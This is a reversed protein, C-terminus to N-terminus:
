ILFLLESDKIGQEQLSMGANLKTGERALWLSPEPQLMLPGPAAKELMAVLTGTLQDVRAGAPLRFDYQCDALPLRVRVHVKDKM